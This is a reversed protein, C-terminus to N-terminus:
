EKLFKRIVSGDIRAIYIGPPLATVDIQVADSNVATTKSVVEGVLNTITVETLPTTATVTLLTHAPNPYLSIEAGQPQVAPVREGVYPVCGASDYQLSAVFMFSEGSDRALSATGFAFNGSQWRGSVLLNGRGDTTLGAAEGDTLSQGTTYHGGADFAALFVPSYDSAPVFPLEHGSFYIANTTDECNGWMFINGCQDAAVARAVAGPTSGGDTAWLNHGSADYATLFVDNHVGGPVFNTLTNSGFNITGSEYTGAAYLNGAGDARWCSTMPWLTRRRWGFPM